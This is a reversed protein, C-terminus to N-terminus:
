IPYSRLKLYKIIFYAEFFNLIMVKFFKRVRLTIRILASVIIVDKSYTENGEFTWKHCLCLMALCM